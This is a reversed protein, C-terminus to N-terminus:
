STENQKITKNLQVQNPHIKPQTKQKKSQVPPANDVKEEAGSKGNAAVAKATPKAHITWVNQYTQKPKNGTSQHHCCRTENQQNTIVLLTNSKCCVM